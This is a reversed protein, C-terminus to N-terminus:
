RSRSSATLSKLTKLSKYFKKFCMELTALCRNQDCRGNGGTTEVNGIDSVNDVEVQGALDVLVNM